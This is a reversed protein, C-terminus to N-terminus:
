EYRLAEIPNAIAAKFAHFSVTILAILLAIGGSLAFVWWNLEVRYAFSQLWKNMAFYAVPWAILNALLVWVTFDKIMLFLIKSFTAGVVKRIGMEKIRRQTNVIALGLLGLCAIAIAFVTFINFISEFREDQIYLQNIKDDLFFYEFIRNPFLEQYKKKIFGITNSLDNTQIKLSIQEFPSQDNKIFWEPSMAFFMPKVTTHLSEFYVDNCVGIITLPKENGYDPNFSKGIADDNKVFGLARCASENIIISNNVDSLSNIFERGALLRINYTSMFNQDIMCFQVPQKRNNSSNPLWSEFSLLGGEGPVARSMSVEKISNYKSFENKIQAYYDLGASHPAHVPIVLIQERNFGIDAKKIFNLQRFVTLTGIILIISLAFQSIVLAKRVSFSNNGNYNNKKLIQVPSFSSFLFVPYIGCIFNILLILVAANLVFNGDWWFFHTFAKGTLNNFVPILLESFSLALILAILVMFTIEFFFQSGIQFKGAGVIKRMAIEKGRMTMRSTTLNVFNISAILTIIFATIYFINVYLANGSNPAEDELNSNLYIDKMPQLFFSEECKDKTLDNGIYIKSIHRINESFQEPDVKERLKIFTFINIQISWDSFLKLHELPKMSILIDFQLHSNHPTDKIVGSVTRYEKGIQIQKGVVNDSGFYKLAIRQSIVISHDNEFPKQALGHIFPLTFINFFDEDVIFCNKEKYRQDPTIQIIQGPQPMIRAVNEIQPHNNRLAVALAGTTTAYKRDSNPMKSEYVIRFIRDVDKHYNDYSKEDQIWLLILFACTMSIALGAINIFSITKNKLINRITITLYNKFM